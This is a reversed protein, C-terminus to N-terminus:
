LHFRAVKDIGAINPLCSNTEIDFIRTRRARLHSKMSFVMSGVLMM